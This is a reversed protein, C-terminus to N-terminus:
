DLVEGVLGEFHGLLAQNSYHRDRSFEQCGGPLDDRFLVDILGVSELDCGALVLGAIDKQACIM